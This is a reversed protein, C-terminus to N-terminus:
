GRSGPHRATGRYRRPAGPHDQRSLPPTGSSTQSVFREMGVAHVGIHQVCELALLRGVAPWRWAFGVHTWPSKTSWGILRSFPDNASCLLLDGDQVIRSIAELPQAPMDTLVRPDITM